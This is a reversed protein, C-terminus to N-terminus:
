VYFVCLFCLGAIASATGRSAALRARDLRTDSVLRPAPALAREKGEPPSFVIKNRVILHCAEGCPSKQPQGNFEAKPRPRSRRSNHQRATGSRLQSHGKSSVSLKRDPSKIGTPQLAATPLASRVHCRAPLCVSHQVHAELRLNSSDHLVLRNSASGNSEITCVDTVDALVARGPPLSQQETCRPGFAPRGPFDGGYSCRQLRPLQLTPPPKPTSKATHKFKMIRRFCFESYHWMHSRAKVAPESFKSARLQVHPCPHFMYHCLEFDNGGRLKAIFGLHERSLTLDM